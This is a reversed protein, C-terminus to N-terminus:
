ALPQSKGLLRAAFAAVAHLTMALPSPTKIIPPLGMVLRQTATLSVTDALTWTNGIDIDVLGKAHALKVTEDDALGLGEIKGGDAAIDRILEDITTPLQM